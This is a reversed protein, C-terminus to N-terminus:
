GGAVILGPFDDVPDTPTFNEERAICLGEYLEQLQEVSVKWLAKRDWRWEPNHQDGSFSALGVRECELALTLQPVGVGCVADCFLQQFLQEDTM